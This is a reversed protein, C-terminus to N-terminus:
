NIIENFKGRFTAGEGVRLSFSKEKPPRPLKKNESGGPCFVKGVGYLFLSVVFSV